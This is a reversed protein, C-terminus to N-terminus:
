LDLGANDDSPSPPADPPEKAPEKQDPKKEPPKERPPEMPLGYESELKKELKDLMMQEVYSPMGEVSIVARVIPRADQESAVLEISGPHRREGEIYEFLMYGADQDRDTVPLRMDVRIMRLASNWV